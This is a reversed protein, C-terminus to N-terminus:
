FGLAAGLMGRPLAVQFAWDFTAYLALPTAVAIALARSRRMGKRPALVGFIYAAAAVQLGLLPIAAVFAVAPLFIAAIRRLRPADLEMPGARVAGRVLNYLSGAVILAGAIAPFSGAGVGRPTWGVGIGVSSALIAAGFAGTVLATAVELSRRTLM